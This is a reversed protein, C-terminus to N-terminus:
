RPAVATPRCRCAAHDRDIRALNDDPLRRNNGHGNRHLLRHRGAVDDDVGGRPALRELDHRQLVVHARWGVAHQVEAVHVQALEVVGAQAARDLLARERETDLHGEGRRKVGGLAEFLGERVDRRTRGAAALDEAGRQAGKVGGVGLERFLLAAAPQQQARRPVLRRASHDHCCVPMRHSPVGHRSLVVVGLLRPPTRAQGSACQEQRPMIRGRTEVHGLM